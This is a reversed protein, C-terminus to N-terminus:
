GVAHHPSMVRHRQHQGQWVSPMHTAGATSQPAWFIFASRLRPATLGRQPLTQRDALLPSHLFPSDQEQEAATILRGQGRTGGQEGLVRRQAPQVDPVVIRLM